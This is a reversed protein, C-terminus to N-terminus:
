DSKLRLMSLESRKPDVRHTEKEGSSKVRESESGNKWSRGVLTVRLDMIGFTNLQKEEKSRM